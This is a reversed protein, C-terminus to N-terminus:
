KDYKLNERPISDIFKIIRELSEPSISHEMKCADIEAIKSDIKLIESFFKLLTNHRVQVNRAMIEGQHTLDVYGYKEHIVLGNQSLTKLASTVSSNKVNMRQSIDKVRTIGKEKRLVGITEIYDEMSASLDKQKM